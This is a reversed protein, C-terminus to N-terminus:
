EVGLDDNKNGKDHPTKGLRRRAGAGCRHEQPRPRCMRGQDNAAAAMSQGSLRAPPKARSHKSQKPQKTAKDQDEKRGLRAKRKAQKRSYNCTSLSM